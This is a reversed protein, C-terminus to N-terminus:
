RCLRALARRYRKELSPSPGGSRVLNHRLDVIKVRKAKPNREVREIYDGYVEGPRRTIADLAPWIRLLSKPLYGDEVTDHLLGLLPHGSHLAVHLPHMM